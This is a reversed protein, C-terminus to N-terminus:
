VVTRLETLPVATLLSCCRTEKGGFAGGVRKVKCVVKHAPVGLAKAVDHQYATPGQVAGARPWGKRALEYIGSPLQAAPIRTACCAAGTVLNGCRAAVGAHVLMAWCVPVQAPAHLIM